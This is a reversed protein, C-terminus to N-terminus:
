SRHRIRLGQPSQSPKSTCMMSSMILTHLAAAGAVTGDVSGDPWLSRFPIDPKWPPVQTPCHPCYASLEETPPLLSLCIQEEQNVMLMFRLAVADGLRAPTLGNEAQPQLGPILIKPQPGDTM